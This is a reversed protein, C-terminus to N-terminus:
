VREIVETGAATIPSKNRPRTRLPRRAGHSIRALIALLIYNALLSSGGYSMWPTTLGTLPILRTVGGVVIFLQIALTSSLGAALLKGFSDRTAIATRLGRIIVITYLMLIATLGVLGLEEGFAAIIFDTSAAPVTDPQGNGLGTGFIGGTAFSFLSQVIQYGTGDPDAFPDLWTQVRLRVHEFIFYAVLTGAAFLTLGIVVWSFRQTALYVVVLFSTYLLLSAGLDKEFVMVGVSIVWAALLPALDRPRPLTMGLLHKGASTFLGRKAVLVASFFILLLIKSFEAPQISFGPLRIWIKAGNQESLAAPLLAPVALFVLGALGCIYGYRALQRHDKLFTVVLAFAAVGVLTWLMQQNASPHRHEGIENDVLDLRHIMVLGLGNLLAVVPLLLPDTYPAFRRIALHASGFLTLFALGYSTLDWPVGQDQNAQVVLLAAFTIVAAFCLLLLEANRRTPLPPTVAVPAQLRTTMGGGPLRHGASAPPAPLAAMTPSSTVPWPTPPSAPAAPSASTPIAPTTGTPASASTTPSPSAPSPPANPETTESTTPPAPRGPPSTARPAPCPPLLSNAALERLQGIADDLTGAPLGARVQAREPPRLDELKMLHCDLPGGSQGYSIQSLENRPSLCGMLYPQHLSMGLLSGQIGRMISVSGAYDAVYYNSRIIARGILLGATMLVTVLAVVFALRRGSWRPRSFTDAQPPVRKVIEKRQSIASARGAATNPLTLQDDDGSVAGALIPQTQGYDYDVVDAVVVTVNDPGGGRLALEILRHASEAVEPIQLAELITEDSVPDSLGDSCLLYRDGARAERMTLTPEVEHGTLARMILSRQPHSHAEEPTIRGEDVLTQVFTDDKTIQTLEGDRLLYGRSDGIHVLGLRNGAFLIATLTTGMGELDPEMEVQAAIASNGARVAADLKALLDGGPEDDDLHALAAIVLQSAVEGAAHGGMGDALALLRAGAYVSDENNARVLGRDSRAAYRLVLTM